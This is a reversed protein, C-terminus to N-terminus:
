GAWIGIVEPVKRCVAPSVATCRTGFIDSYSTSGGGDLQIMQSQLVGFDMLRNIAAANSVRNWDQLFYAYDVGGQANLKLGVYNRTHTATITVDPAYGVVTEQYNALRSNIDSALGGPPSTQTQYNFGTVPHVAEKPWTGISGPQGTIGLGMVRRNGLFSTENGYSIMQGARKEPFSLTKIDPDNPDVDPMIFGSNIVAVLKESRPETVAYGSQLPVDSGLIYYWDATRKANFFTDQRGRWGNYPDSVTRFKGGQGLNVVIVHGGNFACKYVGRSSAPQGQIDISEEFWYGTPCASAPATASSSTTPSPLAAHAPLTSVSLCAATAALAMSIAARRRTTRPWKWISM